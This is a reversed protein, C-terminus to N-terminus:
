ELPTPKILNVPIHFKIRPFYVTVCIFSPRSILKSWAIVMGQVEPIPKKYIECKVMQAADFSTQMTMLRLALLRASKNVFM